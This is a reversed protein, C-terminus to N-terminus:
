FADVDFAQALGEGTRIDQVAGQGIAELPVRGDLTMHSVLYGAVRAQAVPALVGLTFMVMLTNTIMLWILGTGTTDARFTTGEYHTHAAFHNIQRARYWANVLGFLIGAVFLSLIVLGIQQGSPEVKVGLQKSKVITPWMITAIAAFMALYIVIGGAWVGIFRAYLPGSTADFRFPRDGFRMDQMLKKQLMTTRWPSIWGLTLPILLGTWFYTWGYSWSSGVVSGRIGRWRTRSLRYRQARYVAIGILLFILAYTAVQVAAAAASERGFALMAGVQALLLPLLVAGFVILFGLFLEKGTGTYELPEGELRIGSWLRKRVETKGWFSYIGLTVVTLLFNVVSLGVMGTPALWSLRLPQDPAFSQDPTGAGPWHGRTPFDM